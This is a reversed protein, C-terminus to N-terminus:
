GHMSGFFPKILIRSIKSILKVLLALINLSIKKIFSVRKTKNFVRIDKYLEELLLIMQKIKWVILTSIGNEELISGRWKRLLIALGTSQSYNSVTISDISTTMVSMISDVFKIRNNKSITILFDNDQHSPLTLDLENWPILSNRVIIGSFPCVGLDHLVQKFCSGHLELYRTLMGNLEVNGYVLAVDNYGQICSFLDSAGSKNVTDDSDLFLIFESNVHRAGCVRAGQAGKLLNNEIIEIKHKFELDDFLKLKLKNKSGDDVICVKNVFDLSLGSQVATVISDHREYFPIVITCNSM